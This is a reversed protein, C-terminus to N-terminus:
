KHHHHLARRTGALSQYTSNVAVVGTSMEAMLVSPETVVAPNYDFFINATNSIPTGSGRTADTQDFSVLGHSRSFRELQQRAFSTPSSPRFM